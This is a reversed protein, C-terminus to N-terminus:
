ENRLAQMPDIRIARLAPICCAVLAVFTLVGSVVLLTTVDTPSVGFLQNSLLRTFALSLCIGVLIGIATLGLGHRLILKLIDGASAGVTIRLGLEQTRQTVSRSIVGYIGAAALVLALISFLGLLSTSLRAQWLSDARVQDMTRLDLAPIDRDIHVLEGRVASAIQLPETATRIMLYCDPVSFQAIPWFMEPFTEKGLGKLKADAVVGVVTLTHRSKTVDVTIASGIPNQGPWYRQAMTQNIVVVKPAGLSDGPLLHRGQVLAIGLAEFYDATVRQIHANQGPPRDAFQQGPKVFGWPNYFQQFPIQSALAVSQVGPLDRMTQEIKRFLTAISEPSAYRGAPVRLQLTLLHDTRLGSDVQQLSVFSRMLLGAAALLALSLSVEAIVLVNGLRRGGASMSNGRGSEKLAANLDARSGRIAPVVGFFIGTALSLLLAYVCVELNLHITEIRPVRSSPPLLARIPGISAHALVIGILGGSLSLLVSEALLQAVLRARNAGLATRITIERGREALRVLLLNAVNVCAILLVLGVAALLLAFLGNQRGLIFATLPKVAVTNNQGVVPYQERIHAAIAELDTRAQQLSVGSKLRAIPLLMWDVRSQELQPTFTQPIWIQPTNIFTPYFGAPMVGAVRYSANDLVIEQGLVGTDAGFRNRWLTDSLIAVRESGPSYESHLFVRGLHPQAGLTEFFDAAVLHCWLMEAQGSGTLTIRRNAYATMSAFVRNQKKWDHYNGPRVYLVNDDSPNPTHSEFLHVLRDPDHFPLPRLVVAHIVSFIATNAGIGLGLTTLVIALFGPRKRLGRAAFQLEGAFGRWQAPSLAECVTTVFFRLILAATNSLLWVNGALRGFKPIISRQMEERLDGGLSEAAESPLFFQLIRDFRTM